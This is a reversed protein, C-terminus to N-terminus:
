FMLWLIFATVCVLLICMTLFFIQRLRAILKPRANRRNRQKNHRNEENTNNSEDQLLLTENPRKDTSVLPLNRADHIVSITPTGPMLSAFSRQVILSESAKKKPERVSVSKDDDEGECGFLQDLAHSVGLPRHAQIEKIPPIHVIKSHDIIHNNIFWECSRINASNWRTDPEKSLIHTLLYVLEASIEVNLPMKLPQNTINEFLKMIGDGDFPYDASIFNYLTVGLSWIDVLKGRFRKHIGSVVEPPQFKPTGQALTCWDDNPNSLAEAVGLDCIKVVGELSLLLNGPKIDKHIIGRGHLYDLGSLIQTFYLHAQFEPLVKEPCNDLLQQLSCVCFEMVIYLKQKEEIRFIDVLKVINKHDISQHVEIEQQVNQVGGPIKRLKKKDKIIKV